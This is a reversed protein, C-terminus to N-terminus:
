YEEDFDEAEPWDDDSYDDDHYDDDTSNGKRKRIVLFSIIIVGAIIAASVGGVYMSEEYWEDEEGSGGGGGSNSVTVNVTVFPSWMDDSKAIATISHLGDDIMGTDWEYTWNTTGDVTEWSGNDVRVHVTHVEGLTSSAHGSVHVVGSVREDMVPIDITCTVENWEETGGEAALVCQYADVIGYGYSINYKDSLDPFDPEGRAEATERMIRDVDFQTLEPNAELMLAAIGSIHPTAYSTGDATDWGQGNQDTQSFQASTIGVAPAVVEPKLEDYPDNDGDDERPGKSSSDWIVDDSRDVTNQDDIGGVTIAKDASSPPGFGDNDPGENGIAVVVILGSDVAEDVKQALDSSGDDSQTNAYSISLIDIGDNSPDSDGWDDDMHDICWQIGDMLYENTSFSALLDNAVKVEVLGADPAVGRYKGEAGGTGLLCGAVRTGHGNRDDPNNTGDRPDLPDPIEVGAIWKGEFTEHGDDIGTDLVAINIGKGTFGLEDWVDHYLDSPRAKVSGTSIDLAPYYLEHDNSKDDLETVPAAISGLVLIATITCYLIIIGKLTFV